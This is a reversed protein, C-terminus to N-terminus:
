SDTRTPEAGVGPLATSDAPLAIVVSRQGAAWGWAFGFLAGIALGAFWLTM